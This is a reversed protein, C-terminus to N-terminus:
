SDGFLTPLAKQVIDWNEVTLGIDVDLEYVKYPINNEDCYRELCLLKWSPMTRYIVSDSM